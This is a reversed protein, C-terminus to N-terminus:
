KKKTKYSSQYLKYLNSVYPKVKSMVAKIMDKQLYEESDFSYYELNVGAIKKDLESDNAQDQTNGEADNETIEGSDANAIVEKVIKSKVKLLDEALHEVFTNM